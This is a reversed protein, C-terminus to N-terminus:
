CSTKRTDVKPNSQTICEFVLLDQLVLCFSQHAKAQGQIKLLMGAKTPCPIPTFMRLRRSTEQNVYHRVFRRTLGHPTVDTRSPRPPASCTLLFIASRLLGFALSPNQYASGPLTPQIDLAAHRPWITRRPQSLGDMEIAMSRFDSIAHIIM